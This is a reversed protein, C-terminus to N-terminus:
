PYVRVWVRTVSGIAGGVVLGTLSGAAGGAIAGILMDEQCGDDGGGEGCLASVVLVAWAAGGVGGILAGTSAGQRVGSRRVWLGEVTGFPIERVRDDESLVVLRTDEVPGCRGRVNEGSTTLVRAVSGECARRLRAIGASTTDAQAEVRGALLVAAAAAALVMARFGM